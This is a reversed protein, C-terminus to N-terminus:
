KFTFVNKLKKWISSHIVPQEAQYLVNFPDKTPDYTNDEVPPEPSTINDVDIGALAQMRRKHAREENVRETARGLHAEIEQELRERAEDVRYREDPQEGNLAQEIVQSGRYVPINDGGTATIRRREEGNSRLILDGDNIEVNGSISLQTTPTTTGLLINGTNTSTSYTFKNGADISSAFGGTINLRTGQDVAPGYGEKYQNLKAQEDESM